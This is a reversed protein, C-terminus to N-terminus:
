VTQAPIHTSHDFWAITGYCAKKTATEATRLLSPLLKDLKSETWKRTKEAVIATRLGEANAFNCQDINYLHRGKSGQCGSNLFELVETASRTSARPNTHIYLHRTSALLMMPALAM